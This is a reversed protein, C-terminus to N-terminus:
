KPKSVRSLICHKFQECLYVGTEVSIGNDLAHPESDGHVSYIVLVESITDAKGALDAAVEVISDVQTREM